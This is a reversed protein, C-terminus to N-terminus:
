CESASVAPDAVAVVDEVDAAGAVRDVRLRTPSPADFPCPMPTPAVEGGVCGLSGQEAAERSREPHWRVNSAVPLCADDLLVVAQQGALDDADAGVPDVVVVILSCTALM